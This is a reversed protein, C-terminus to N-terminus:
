ASETRSVNNNDIKKGIYYSFWIEMWGGFKDVPVEDLKNKFSGIHNRRRAHNDLGCEICELGSFLAMLGSPTFRWYDNPVPHYRYSFPVRIFLYGNLKLMNILNTAAIYPDIIHEFTNNCYIVDAYERYDEFNDYVINKIITNKIGTNESFDFNLYNCQFANEFNFKEGGGIEIISKPEFKRELLFKKFFIEPFPMSIAKKMFPVKCQLEVHRIKGNKLEYIEDFDKETLQNMNM